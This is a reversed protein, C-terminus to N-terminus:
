ATVEESKWRSGWIPRRLNGPSETRSGARRLHKGSISISVLTWLRCGEQGTRPCNTCPCSMGCLTGWEKWPRRRHCVWEPSSAPRLALIRLDRAQGSPEELELPQPCCQNAPCAACPAQLSSLM